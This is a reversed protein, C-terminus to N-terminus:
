LYVEHYQQQRLIHWKFVPCKEHHLHSLNDPFNRAQRVAAVAALGGFHESGRITGRLYISYPKPYIVGYVGCEIHKLPAINGQLKTSSPPEDCTDDLHRAQCGDQREACAKSGLFHTQPKPNLAWAAISLLFRLKSSVARRLGKRSINVGWGKMHSGFYKLMGCHSCPINAPHHTPTLIPSPILSLSQQCSTGRMAYCHTVNTNAKM